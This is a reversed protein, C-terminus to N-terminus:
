PAPCTALATALANDTENIEFLVGQGTGDDDAVVTILPSGPLPNNWVMDVQMLAPGGDGGVLDLQTVGILTQSASHYFAVNITPGGFPSDNAVVASLTVSGNCQASSVFVDTTSVEPFEVSFCSEILQWANSAAADVDPQYGADDCLHKNAGQKCEWLNGRVSLIRDGAKYKAGVQWAPANSCNAAPPHCQAGLDGSTSLLSLAATVFVMSISTRM